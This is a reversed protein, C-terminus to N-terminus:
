KGLEEETLGRAKLREIAQDLYEQHRDRILGITLSYRCSFIEVGVLSIRTKGNEWRIEGLDFSGFKELEIKTPEGLLETFYDKLYLFNKNGEFDHGLNESIQSVPYTWPLYVWMQTEVHSAYGDLIPRKGFYWSTRDGSDRREQKYKDLQNFPTEWHIMIQQDELLIGRQLNSWIEDRKQLKNNSYPYVFATDLKSQPQLRSILERIRRSFLM